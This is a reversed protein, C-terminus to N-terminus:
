YFAIASTLFVNEFIETSAGVCDGTIGGIRKMYILCVSIISLCGLTLSVSVSIFGTHKGAILALVILEALLVILILPPGSFGFAKGSSDRGYPFISLILGQIIRSFTLGYVIMFTGNSNALSQYSVIRWIIVICAAAAGFSGIHSDKLISLTKGRDHWTGFADATDALGDLHLGGTVVYNLICLALGTFVTLGHPAAHIGMFLLLHLCGIFAGVFVFWPLSQYKYLAEAGPVPLVTLTRFATVMPKFAM